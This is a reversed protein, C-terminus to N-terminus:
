QGLPKKVTARGYAAYIASVISIGQMVLNTTSEPDITDTKVGVIAAIQLLATIVAGIFMRSQWLPEQNTINTIIANVEKNVAKTVAPAIKPADAPSMENTTKISEDALKAEIIPGLDAM